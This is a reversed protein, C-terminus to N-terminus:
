KQRIYFRQIESSDEDHDEDIEQYSLTVLEFQSISFIPIEMEGIDTTELKKEWYKNKRSYMIIKSKDTLIKWKGTENDGCEKWIYTGNSFYQITDKCTIDLYEKGDKTKSTQNIWKGIILKRYNEKNTEQAFATQIFILIYTLYFLKRM